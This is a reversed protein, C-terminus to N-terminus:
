PNEIHEQVGCGLESVAYGSGYFDGDGTVLGSAFVALGRKRFDRLIPAVIDVPMACREATHKFSTFGSESEYHGLVALVKREDGSLGAAIKAIDTM